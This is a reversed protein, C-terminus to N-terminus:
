KAPASPSVAAIRVVAGSVLSDSPNVIIRDSPSVGSIIEVTPGFDRGLTVRRLEVKGDAGVM